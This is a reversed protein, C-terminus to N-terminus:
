GRRTSKKSLAAAKKSAQKRKKLVAAHKALARLRAFGVLLVHEAMDGVSQDRTEAYETLLGHVEANISITKKKDSM